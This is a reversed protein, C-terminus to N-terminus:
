GTSPKRWPETDGHHINEARELIFSHRAEFLYDIQFLTKKKGGVVTIRDAELAALAPEEKVEFTLLIQVEYCSQAYISKAVSMRPDYSRNALLAGAGNM